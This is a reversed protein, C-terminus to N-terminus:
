RAGLCVVRGDATSLFLRGNAAALGDWVPKPADLERLASGDAASVLRLKGGAYLILRDGALAMAEIWGPYPASWTVKEALRNAPFYQGIRSATDNPQEDWLVDFKEGPAFDRRFLKLAGAERVRNAGLVSAGRGVLLHYLLAFFSRQAVKLEDTPKVDMPLGLQIKPVGYVLSTLGDLSWHEDLGELLLRLSDRQSDDLTSLLETDPSTRVITREEAPMQTM